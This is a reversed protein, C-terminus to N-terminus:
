ASRTKENHGFRRTVPGTTTNTVRGDCVTFVSVISLHMPTHTKERYCGRSLLSLRPREYSWLQGLPVASCGSLLRIVRLYSAPVGCRHPRSTSKTKPPYFVQWVTTAVCWHLPQGGERSGLCCRTSVCLRAPTGYYMVNGLQDM